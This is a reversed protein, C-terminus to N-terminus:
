HPYSGGAAESQEILELVECIRLGSPAEFCVQDGVRRGLLAAGLPALVSIRGAALDMSEPFVLRCEIVADTRWDSLRVDSNMTIVDPAVEHDAMVIARRLDSRLTRLYGVLNGPSDDAISLLGELRQRDVQTIYITRRTM